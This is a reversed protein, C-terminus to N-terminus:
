YDQFTHWVISVHYDSSPVDVFNLRLTASPCLITQVIVGTPSPHAGFEPHIQWNPDGAHKFELDCEGPANTVIITMMQGQQLGDLLRALPLQQLQSKSQFSM